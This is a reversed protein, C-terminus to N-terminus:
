TEIMKMLRKNERELQSIKKTLNKIENLSNELEKETQQLLEVREKLQENLKATQMNIKASSLSGAISEAIKEVTEIDNKKFENFSALEIVGLVRDEIKLPVILVSRPNAKGTGSEIEIYDDPVETLYVTYKELAAAGVLGEGPKIEKSLYKKRNYAYAGILEYFINEPDEDNLFFLAGQNAETFNVLSSIVSDALDQINDSHRRLIEAFLTLGENTKQRQAEEQKRKDEEIQSIELNEKLALLANGLSDDDSVPKFASSFNGKGLMESFTVANKLNTVIQNLSTSINVIDKGANYHEEEPLSGKALQNVFNQIKATPRFIYKSIFFFVLAFLTFILIIFVLLNLEAKRLLNNKQESFDSVNKKIINRVSNLNDFIINFSEKIQNNIEYINSYLGKYTDSNISKPAYKEIETLKEKEKILSIILPDTEKNYLTSVEEALRIIKINESNTAQETLLLKLQEINKNFKNTNEEHKKRYTTLETKNEYTILNEAFNLDSEFIFNINELLKEQAYISQIAKDTKAYNYIFVLENVSFFLTTLFIVAFSIFLIIHLTLKKM